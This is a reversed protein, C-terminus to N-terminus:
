NFSVVHPQPKALNFHITDIKTLNSFVFIAGVSNLIM